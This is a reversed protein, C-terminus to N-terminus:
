PKAAVLYGAISLAAREGRMPGEVRLGADRFWGVYPAAGPFDAIMAMGGPKLVRVIEACALRQEAAPEINHICFVSAVVDVSADPLDLKRADGTVIEIRGAVGELLANRRLAEPNNGSLDRASWIDLAIIRGKPARHAAGVAMLGRGAGIDLVTEDGRWARQRLLHDRLRQKGVFVYALMSLGLLLLLMAALLAAWGLMGLIGPALSLLAFGAIWLALSGGLLGRVVGPADVGYDPMEAIDSKPRVTSNM